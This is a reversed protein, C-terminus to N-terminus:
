FNDTADQMSTLDFVLVYHDKFNDIPLSPIDVRFNMAKVTTVYFRSKDAVDFDVFLQGGRLKRNPRLDINKYLVPTETFSGSFATNTNVAFVIRRVPSNKFINEQIFQNQRAPIILSKAQAELNNFEVPTYALMDMRKRHYDDKLAIRRTYISFHVIGLSGSPNDSIM